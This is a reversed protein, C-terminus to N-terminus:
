ILCPAHSYILHNHLKVQRTACMTLASGISQKEHGSLFNPLELRISKNPQFSKQPKM